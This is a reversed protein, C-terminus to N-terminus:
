STSNRLYGLFTEPLPSTARPVLQDTGDETHITRRQKRGEHVIAENQKEARPNLVQQLAHVVKCALIVSRPTQQVSRAHVAVFHLAPDLSSPVYSCTTTIVAEDIISFVASVDFFIM